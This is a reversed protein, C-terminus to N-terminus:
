TKSAPRKSESRMGGLEGLRGIDREDAMYFPRDPDKPTLGGSDGLRVPGELLVEDASPLKGSVLVFRNREVNRAIHFLWTRLEMDDLSFVQDKKVTNFRAHRYRETNGLRKLVELKHENEPLGIKAIIKGIKNATDVQIQDGPIYGLQQVFAPSGSGSTLDAPYLDGHLQTQTPVFLQTRGKPSKVDVVIDPKFPKAM